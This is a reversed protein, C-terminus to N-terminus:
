KGVQKGTARTIRRPGPMILMIMFQLSVVMLVFTLIVIMVMLSMIVFSMVMLSMVVFMFYTAFMRTLDDKFFGQGFRDTQSGHGNM